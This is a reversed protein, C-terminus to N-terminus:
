RLTIEMGFRSARRTGAGAGRTRGLRQFRAVFEGFDPKWPQDEAPRLFSVKSRQAIGVPV